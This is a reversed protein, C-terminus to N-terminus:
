VAEMNGFEEVDSQIPDSGLTENVLGALDNSLTLTQRAGRDEAPKRKRKKNNREEYYTLLVGDFAEGNDERDKAVLAYLTNFATLGEVTWGSNRGMVHNSSRSTYRFNPVTEIETGGDSSSSSDSSMWSWAEYGNKYLLLAFAEQSATVFKSLKKNGAAENWIEKGYVPPLMRSVFEMYQKVNKRMELELIEPKPPEPVQETGNRMNRNAAEMWEVNCDLLLVPM